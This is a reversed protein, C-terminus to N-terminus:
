EKEQHYIGGKLSEILLAISRSKSEKQFVELVHELSADGYLTYHEGTKVNEAMGESLSSDTIRVDPVYVIAPVRDIGYRRFLIPDIKIAVRRSKCTARDNCVADPAIVERVFALTPKLYKMGGVFGQMVMFVNPDKLRDLDRAYNCLTQIPVSSSVFLYIRENGPLAGGKTGSKGAAADGYYSELTEKFVTTKLREVEAEYKERFAESQFYDATKQAEERGQTEHRNKPIEIKRGLEAAKELFRGVDMLDDTEAELPFAPFSVAIIILLLSLRLRKGTKSLIRLM